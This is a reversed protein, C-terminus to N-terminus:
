CLEKLISRVFLLRAPSARSESATFLSDTLPSTPQPKFPTPARILRYFEM